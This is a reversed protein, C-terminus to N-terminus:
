DLDFHKNQLHMADLLMSQLQPLADVSATAQPKMASITMQRALVSRLQVEISQHYKDLFGKWLRDPLLIACKPITEQYDTKFEKSRQALAKERLKIEDGLSLGPYSANSADETTSPNM